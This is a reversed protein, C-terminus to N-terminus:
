IDILSEGTKGFLTLALFDDTGSSFIIEAKIQRKNFVIPTVAGDLVLDELLFKDQFFPTKM